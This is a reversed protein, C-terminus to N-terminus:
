TGEVTCTQVLSLILREPSEHEEGDKPVECCGPKQSKHVITSEAGNVAAVRSEANQLKQQNGGSNIIDRVIVQVETPDM